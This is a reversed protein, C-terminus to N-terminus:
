LILRSALMQCNMLNMLRISLKSRNTFILLKSEDDSWTYGGIALPSSEGSPILLRSPVLVERAGSEADYRVIGRGGRDDDDADDDKDSDTEDKDDDKDDDKDSDKEDKDEDKDDKKKDREVVTYAARDKLWRISGSREPTFESSDFIRELTLPKGDESEDAALPCATAGILVLASALRALALRVSHPDNSQSRMPYKKVPHKNLPNSWIPECDALGNTELM